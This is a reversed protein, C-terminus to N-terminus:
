CRACATPMAACCRASDGAVRALRIRLGKADAQVRLLRVVDEVRGRLDFSLNELIIKRAEIKSLDLIDNILALLARGSNQAVDAYQRQEATLDTELLM